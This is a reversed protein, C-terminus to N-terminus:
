DYNESLEYVLNINDRISLRYGLPILYKEIVEIGCHGYEVAIIKPALIKDVESLKSLVRGEHGEVDLIFLDIKNNIKQEKYLDSITITKVDMKEFKCNRNVLELFHNKTHELSGNGFNGDYYPVDNSIAQTFTQIGNKDSLALNLNIDEPRNNLLHNYIKKLPEINYGRWGLFNYFFLTNSDIIGDFAGCEIFNGNTKNLFFKEYIKKDLELQGYFQM